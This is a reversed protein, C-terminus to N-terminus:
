LFMKIDFVHQCQITVTCRKDCLCKICVAFLINTEWMLVGSENMQLLIRCIFMM